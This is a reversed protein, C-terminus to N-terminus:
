RVWSPRKSAGAQELQDLALHFDQCIREEVSSTRCPHCWLRDQEQAIGALASRNILILYGFYYTRQWRNPMTKVIRWGPPQRRAWFVVFVIAGKGCGSIVCLVQNPRIRVFCDQLSPKTASDMASSTPVHVPWSIHGSRPQNVPPM